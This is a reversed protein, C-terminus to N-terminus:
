ERRTMSTSEADRIPERRTEDIRAIASLERVAEGVDDAEPQQHDSGAILIADVGIRKAAIGHELHREVRRRRLAVKARL